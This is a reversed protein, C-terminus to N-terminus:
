LLYRGQLANPVSQVLGLLGQQSGLLQQQALHPLVPEACSQLAQHDAPHWVGPEAGTGEDGPDQPGGGVKGGRHQCWPRLLGEGYQLLQPRGRLQGGGRQLTVSHIACARAAPCHHSCCVARRAWGLLTTSDTAVSDMAAPEVGPLLLAESLCWYMAVLRLHERM